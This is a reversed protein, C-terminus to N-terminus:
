LEDPADAEPLLSDRRLEMLWGREDEFRRLPLRLLGDIM